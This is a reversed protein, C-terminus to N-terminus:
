EKAQAAHAQELFRDFDAGQKKREDVWLQLIVLADVGELAKESRGFPHKGTQGKM